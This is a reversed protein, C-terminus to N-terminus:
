IPLHNATARDGWCISCIRLDDSRRIQVGHKTHFRFSCRDRRAHYIHGFIYPARSYVLEVDAYPCKPLRFVGGHAETWEPGGQIWDRWSHAYLSLVSRGRELARHSYLCTVGWARISFAKGILAFYFVIINLLYM